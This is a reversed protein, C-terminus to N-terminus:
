QLIKKFHELHHEQVQSFIEPMVRESATLQLDM